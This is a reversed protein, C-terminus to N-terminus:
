IESGDCRQPKGQARHGVSLVEPSKKRRRTAEGVVPKVGVVTMPSLLGFPFPAIVYRGHSSRVLESRHDTVDAPATHCASSYLSLANVFIRFDSRVVRSGAIGIDGGDRSGGTLGIHKPQRVTRHLM